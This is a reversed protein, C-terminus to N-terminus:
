LGKGTGKLFVDSVDSLVVWIGDDKLWTITGTQNSLQSQRIGLPLTVIEDERKVVSENGHWEHGFTVAKGLAWTKSNLTLTQGLIYMVEKLTLYYLLIVSKFDRIYTESDELYDELYEKIIQM